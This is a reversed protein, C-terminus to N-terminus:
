LYRGVSRSAILMQRHVSNLRFPLNISMMHTLKIKDQYFTFTYHTYTDVTPQFETTKM